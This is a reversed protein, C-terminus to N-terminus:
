THSWDSMEQGIQMLRLVHREKAIARETGIAILVEMLCLFFLSTLLSMVTLLNSSLGKVYSYYASYLIVAALLTMQVYTFYKFMAILAPRWLGAGIIWCMAFLINLACPVVLEYIATRWDVLLQEAGMSLIVLVFFINISGFLYTLIRFARNTLMAEVPNLKKRLSEMTSSVIVLEVGCVVFMISFCMKVLVPMKISEFYRHGYVVMVLSFVLQAYLFIKFLRILSMEETLVGIVLLVALVMNALCPSILVELLPREDTHQMITYITYAMTLLNGSAILICLFKCMIIRPEVSHEVDVKVIYLLAAALCILVFIAGLQVYSFIKVIKVLRPRRTVIGIILAIVSAFNALCTGVIILNTSLPLNAIPFVKCALTIFIAILSIALSYLFVKHLKNTSMTACVTSECCLVLAVPAHYFLTRPVLPEHM